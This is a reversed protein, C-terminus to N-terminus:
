LEEDKDEIQSPKLMGPINAAKEREQTAKRHAEAEKEELFLEANDSASFEKLQILFDRVAAKFRNVDHVSEGLTQVFDRTQSRRPSQTLLIILNLRCNVCKEVHPFANSLLEFSYQKVFIANTITADPVTAPDFIPAGLMSDEVLQFLRSLVM